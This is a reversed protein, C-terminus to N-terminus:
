KLAVPERGYCSSYLGSIMVREVYSLRHQPLNWRSSITKARDNCDLKLLGRKVSPSRIIPKQPAQESGLTADQVSSVHHAAYKAQM